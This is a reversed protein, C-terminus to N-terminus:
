SVNCPEAVKGLYLRGNNDACIPAGVERLFEIVGDPDDLYGDDGQGILEFPEVNKEILEEFAPGLEKFAQDFLKNTM